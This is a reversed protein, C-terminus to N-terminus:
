RSRDDMVFMLCVATKSNPLIITEKVHYRGAKLKM